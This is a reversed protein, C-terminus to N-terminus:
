RHPSWREVAEGQGSGVSRWYADVAAVSDWADKMGPAELSNGSWAALLAAM